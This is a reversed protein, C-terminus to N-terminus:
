YLKATPGGDTTLVAGNVFSAAGSTLWVIAEAVEDSEGVRNQASHNSLVTKMLEPEDDLYPDVM